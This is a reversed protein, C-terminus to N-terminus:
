LLARIKAFLEDPMYPKLLFDDAGAALCDERRNMGSVMIVRLSRLDETQRIQRVLDLGSHRGLYIDLILIDPQAARINELPHGNKDMLTTVSFGEMKLLTALLSVMTEDDDAVLVKTM